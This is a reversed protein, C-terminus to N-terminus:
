FGGLSEAPSLDRDGPHQSLRGPLASSARTGAGPIGPGPPMQGCGRTGREKGAGGPRCWKPSLGIFLWQQSLRTLPQGPQPRHGAGLQCRWAGSRRRRRRWGAVGRGGWPRPSEPTFVAAELRTECVLRDEEWWVSSERSPPLRTPVLVPLSPLRPPLSFVLLFFGLLCFLSGVRSERLALACLAAPHGTVPM